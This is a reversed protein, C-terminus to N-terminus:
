LRVEVVGYKPYYWHKQQARTESLLKGYSILGRIILDKVLYPVQGSWSLVTRNM